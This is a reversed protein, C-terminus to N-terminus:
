PKEKPFSGLLESCPERLGHKRKNTCAAKVHNLAASSPRLLAFSDWLMAFLITREHKPNQKTGVTSFTATFEIVGHPTNIHLYSSLCIPLDASICQNSVFILRYISLRCSGHFPWHPNLKGLPGMYRFLM